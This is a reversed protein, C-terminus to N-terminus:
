YGCSVYSAEKGWKAELVGYGRTEEQQEPQEAETVRAEKRKTM